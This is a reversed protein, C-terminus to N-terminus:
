SDSCTTHRAKCPPADLAPGEDSGLRHLGGKEICNSFGPAIMANERRNETNWESRFSKREGRDTILLISHRETCKPTSAVQYFRPPAPGAGRWHAPIRSFHLRSIGVVRGETMFYTTGGITIGTRKNMPITVYAISLGGIVSAWGGVGAAFKCVRYCPPPWRWPGGILLFCTTHTEFRQDQVGCDRLERSRPRDFVGAIPAGTCSLVARQWPEAL